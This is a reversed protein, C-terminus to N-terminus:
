KLRGAHCHFWAYEFMSLKYDIGIKEKLYKKMKPYYICSKIFDSIRLIIM